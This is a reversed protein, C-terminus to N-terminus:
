PAWTWYIQNAEVTHISLILKVFMQRILGKKTKHNKKMIGSVTKREGVGWRGIQSHAIELYFCSCHHCFSAPSLSGVVLCFALLFCVLTDTWWFPGLARNGDMDWKCTKNKKKLYCVKCYYYSVVESHMKGHCGLFVYASPIKTIILSFFLNITFDLIVAQWTYDFSVM